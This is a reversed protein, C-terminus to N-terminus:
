RPKRARRARIERIADRVMVDAEESDPRRM